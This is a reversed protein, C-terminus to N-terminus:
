ERMTQTDGNRKSGECGVERPRNGRNPSPLGESEERSPSPTRASQHQETAAAATSDKQATPKNGKRWYDALQKRARLQDKQRKWIRGQEIEIHYSCPGAIGVVTGELWLPLGGYNRAYVWDGIVFPRYRRYSDLPKTHGYSPHLRDLTMRLKRGMLLKAPSRNTLQCPTTHQAILFEEM